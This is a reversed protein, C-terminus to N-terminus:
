QNEFRVRATLEGELVCLGIRESLAGNEEERDEDIVLVGLDDPTAIVTACDSFHQHCIIIDNVPTGSKALGWAMKEDSVIIRTGSVNPRHSSIHGRFYNVQYLFSVWDQTHVTHSVCVSESILSITENTEIQDMISNQGSPVSIDFTPVDVLHSCVLMYSSCDRKMKFFSKSDLPRDIPVSKGHVVRFVERALSSM